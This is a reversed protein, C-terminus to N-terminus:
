TGCVYRCGRLGASLLTPEPFELTVMRTENELRDIEAEKVWSGGNELRASGTVSGEAGRNKVTCGIIIKYDTGFSKRATQGVSEPLLQNILKAAGSCAVGTTLLLFLISVIGIRHLSWGTIVLNSSPLGNSPGSM